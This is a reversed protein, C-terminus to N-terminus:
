EGVIRVRKTVGGAASQTDTLDTLPFRGQATSMVVGSAIDVLRLNVQLQRGSIAYTGVLVATLDQEQRLKGIDRSLSFEGRADIQIAQSLRAEILTWGKLQLAHMLNETLLRGFTSSRDFQDVDSLSTIVVRQPSLPEARNRVLQEALLRSQAVLLSPQQNESALRFTASLGDDPYLQPDPTGSSACATILPVLLSVFPLSKFSM